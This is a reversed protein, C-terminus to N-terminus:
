MHLQYHTGLRWHGLMKANVNAPKVGKVCNQALTKSVNMFSEGTFCWTKRPNISGALECIHMLCHSKSTVQCCNPLDEEDEFHRSVLNQLHCMTSCAQKLELHQDPPFADLNKCNDMLQEMKLNAKLMALIQRHIELHRNCFKEWLFLVLAGFYKVESAKGRLKPPGSKRVFMTLRNFYSYAQPVKYKKYWQQMLLWLRQLNVKPDAADMVLHTLLYLVGGFQYQDSGLYKCHMYDYCVNCGTVWPLSFLKCTSKNGWEKWTTPMWSTAEWPAGPLFNRYTLDGTASASCLSCVQSSSSWRPMQLTNSFYELDGILSVLAATWGGALFKGALKFGESGPPYDRGSWDKNPFKGEAMCNFSWTLIQFFDDLTEKGAMLAEFCTWILLSTAKCGGDKLLSSWSFCLSLKAWVKGIGVTPVGDGHLSLPIMRKPYSPKSQLVGNAMCPHTQMGEWFKCLRDEGGPVFFTKFYNPFKNYMANFVLHPLMISQLLMGAKMKLSVQLPQPLLSKKPLFSQLDRHCNQPHAGFSGIKAIDLLAQPPNNAGQNKMDTVALSAIRQITQASMYGWAWQEELYTALGSTHPKEAAMAAQLKQRQGVRRKKDPPEAM